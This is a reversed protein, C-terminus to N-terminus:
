ILTRLRNILIQQRCEEATQQVKMTEEYSLEAPAIMPFDTDDFLIGQERLAARATYLDNWLIAKSRVSRLYSVGPTGNTGAVGKLHQQVIALHSDLFRMYEKELKFVETLMSRADTDGMTFLSFIMMLVERPIEATNAYLSEVEYQDFITVVEKSRLLLAIIAGFLGPSEAHEMIIAKDSEKIGLRTQQDPYSSLRDSQRFGM